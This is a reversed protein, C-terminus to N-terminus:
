IIEVSYNWFVDPSDGEIAISFSKKFSLNIRIGLYPQIAKMKPYTANPDNQPEDETIVFGNKKFFAIWKNYTMFRNQGTSTWETPLMNNGIDVSRVINGGEKNNYFRYEGMVGYRFENDDGFSELKMGMQGLQNLTTVGPMVGEIPFFPSFDTTKTQIRSRKLTISYLTKYDNVSNTGEGYNFNLEISLNHATDTANIRASFAGSTVTPKERIQIDWNNRQLWNVWQNYSMLFSLGADIWKQPLGDSNTFYLSTIIGDGEHDWYTRDNIRVSHQMDNRPKSVGGANIAEEVKTWGLIIGGDMPNLRDEIPCKGVRRFPYKDINKKRTAAEAKYTAKVPKKVKIHKKTPASRKITSQAYSSVGGFTCLGIM